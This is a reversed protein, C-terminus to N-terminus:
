WGGLVAVAGEFRARVDAGEAVLLMLLLRAKAASLSGAALAGLDRV